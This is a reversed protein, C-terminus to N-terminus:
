QTDNKKSYIHNVLSVHLNNVPVVRTWFRSPASIFVDTHHLIEIIELRWELKHIQAVIVSQFTHSAFPTTTLKQAACTLFKSRNWLDIQGIFQLTMPDMSIGCIVRQTPM